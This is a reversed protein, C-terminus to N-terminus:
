VGMHKMYVWSSNFCTINSFDKNFRGRFIALIIESNEQNEFAHGAGSNLGGVMLVNNVITISDVFYSNFVSPFSKFQPTLKM